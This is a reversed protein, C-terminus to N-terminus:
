LDQTLGRPAWLAQHGGYHHQISVFPTLSLISYCFNGLLSQPECGPIINPPTKASFWCFQLQSAGVHGGFWQLYWFLWRGLSTDLPTRVAVVASEEQHAPAAARSWAGGSHSLKKRVVVELPTGLSGTSSSMEDAQEHSRTRETVVCLEHGYILTSVNVSPYIRLKAKQTLEKKVVVTLYM